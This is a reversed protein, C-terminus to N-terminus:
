HHARRQCENLDPGASACAFAGLSNITGGPRVRSSQALSSRAPSSRASSSQVPSLQVSSSVAQQARAAPSELPGAQPRHPHPARASLERRAATQGDMLGPQRPSKIPRARRGAPWVSARAADAPREHESTARQGKPQGKEARETRRLKRASLILTKTKAMKSRMRGLEDPRRERGGGGRPQRQRQRQRQRRGDASASASAAAAAAAACQAGTAPARPARFAGAIWNAPM